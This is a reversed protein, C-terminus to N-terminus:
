PQPCYDRYDRALKIQKSDAGAVQLQTLIHEIDPRRYWTGIFIGKPEHIGKLTEVGQVYQMTGVQLNEQQYIREKNLATWRRAEDYTGAIVFYRM